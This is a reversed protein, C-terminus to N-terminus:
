YEEYDAMKYDLNKGADIGASNVIEKSGDEKIRLLYAIVFLHDKVYDSPITGTYSTEFEQDVALGSIKDGKMDSLYKRFVHEYPGYGGSKCENEIIAVALRYEDKPETLTKVKATVNIKDGSISTELAIGQNGKVSLRERVVDKQNAASLRGVYDYYAGGYGRTTGIEDWFYELAAVSEKTAWPDPSNPTLTGHYGIILVKGPNENVISGLQMETGPCVACTVSTMMQFLLNKQFVKEANVEVTVANSMEGVYRAQFVYTGKKRTIFANGKLGEAGASVSIVCESTIDKGDKRATLIVKDEGNALLETKDTSLVFGTEDPGSTNEGGGCAVLVCFFVNWVFSYLCRKM